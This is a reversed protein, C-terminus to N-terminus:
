TGSPVLNVSTSVAARLGTPLKPRSRQRPEDNQAESSAPQRTDARGQPDEHHHLVLEIDDLKLDDATIRDGSVLSMPSFVPGQATEKVLQYLNDGYLKESHFYHVDRIKNPNQLEFGMQALLWSGMEYHSILDTDPLLYPKDAPNDRREFAIMPVSAVAPRLRNHGWAGDEGLMQGHDSTLLWLLDGKFNREAFEITDAVLGDLYVIANDYANSRREDPTLSEAETPWIRYKEPEAHYADAYPTHATRLNLVVFNKEAWQQQELWDLAIRDGNTSLNLQDDERTIRVDIFHSGLGNLLKSEQTSIWFTKYGSEKARRFLNAVGSDLAAINGPENVVNMMLPLSAGTAVSAALGGAVQLKGSAALRSLNPTTARQYGTVGLRENRVSDPIVLFITEPADEVAVRQISYPKYDPRQFQEARGFMRTLYFSFVNISNHLSSRTPGPMFALMDQRMARHPKSGLILVVLLLAIWSYRGPERQNRRSPLQCNFLTFLVAYPLGWALLVPWHEATAAAVSTRIEEQESVLKSIDYATLPSGIFSINCLQLLQMVAFAGLVLNAFWRRGAFWLCLNLIWIVLVYAPELEAQNNATYLQQLFDDCLMLATSILSLTLNFLGPSQTPIRFRRLFFAWVPNQRSKVCPSM